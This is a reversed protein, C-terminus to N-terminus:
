PLPLRRDYFRLTSPRGKLPTFLLSTKMTAGARVRIPKAAGVSIRHLPALNGQADILRVLDGKALGQISLEQKAHNVVELSVEVNGEFSPEAGVVRIEVEDLWSPAKTQSSSHGSPESDCAPLGVSLVLAFLVFWAM